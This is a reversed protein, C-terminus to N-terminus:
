ISEDDKLIKKMQLERHLNKNYCENLSKEFVEVVRDELKESVIGEIINSWKQLLELDEVILSNSDGSHIEICSNRNDFVIELNERYHFMGSHSKGLTPDEDIIFNIYYYRHGYKMKKYVSIRPDDIHDIFFELFKDIKQM